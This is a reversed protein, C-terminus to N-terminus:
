GQLLINTGLIKQSTSADFLGGLKTTFNWRHPLGINHTLESVFSQKGAGFISLSSHM